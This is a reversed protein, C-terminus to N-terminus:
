STGARGAFESRCAIQETAPMMVLRLAITKPVSVARTATRTQDTGVTQQPLSKASPQPGLFHLSTNSAIQLEEKPLWLLQARRSRHSWLPLGQALISVAVPPKPSTRLSYQRVYRHAPATSGGEGIGVALRDIAIGVPEIDGAPVVRMQREALPRMDAQAGRSARRSNRHAKGARNTRSSSRASVMATSSTTSM